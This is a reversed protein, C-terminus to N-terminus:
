VCLEDITAQLIKKFKDPDCDRKILRFARSRMDRWVKEDAYLRISKEITDEWDKGVFAEYGDNVGLQDALLPSIVCPIGNAMAEHVKWPIGTAFRTYAVFIRHSEYLPVLDPVHGLLNVGEFTHKRLRPSTVKGTVNLESQTVQKVKDWCNELYVWLGDENSSDEELIGGVVLVDKRDEFRQGQIHPELAHGIMVVKKAGAEELIKKEIENVVFCLDASKAMGLEDYRYAWIPLRGTISMQLDYRRYWLAETDYIVKANPLRKRAVPLHYHANHPRSCIILNIDTPVKELDDYVEIGYSRLRDINLEMISKKVNPYFHIKHGLNILSLLMRYARPFGAGFQPDPVKDDILLIHIPM